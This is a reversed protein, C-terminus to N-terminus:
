SSLVSTGMGEPQKEYFHLHFFIIEVGHFRANRYKGHGPKMQM